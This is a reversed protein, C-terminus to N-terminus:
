QPPRHYARNPRRRRRWRGTHHVSKGQKTLLYATTIGAIGAGVICVDAHADEVLAIRNPTATTSMWLSVSQGSNEPQMIVRAEYTHM